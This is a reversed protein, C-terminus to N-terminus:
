SAWRWLILLDKLADTQLALANTWGAQSRMVADGSGRGCNLSAYIGESVGGTRLFFGHAVGGTELNAAKVVAPVNEDSGYLKTGDAM